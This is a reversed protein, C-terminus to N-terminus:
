TVLAGNGFNEFGQLVGSAFKPFLPASAVGLYPATWFKFNRNRVQPLVSLFKLNM